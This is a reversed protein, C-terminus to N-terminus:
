ADKKKKDELRVRGVAACLVRLTGKEFLLSAGRSVTAGTTVIDDIIVIHKGELYDRTAIRKGKVRVADRLFITNEANETRKEFTLKKQERGSLKRFLPVAPCDLAMAVYRCLWEGQDFGVKAIAARRRPIWTFACNEFDLRHTVMASAVLPALENAMRRFLRLNKYDKMFLLLRDGTRSKDSGYFCLAPLSVQFEAVPKPICVCDKATLKCVPCVESKAGEWKKECAPCFCNEERDFPVPLLRESCLACKPVSLLERLVTKMKAM